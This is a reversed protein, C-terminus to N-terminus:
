NSMSKHANIHIGGWVGNLAANEMTEFYFLSTTGSVEPSFSCTCPYIEQQEAQNQKSHSRGRGWKVGGKGRECREGRQASACM